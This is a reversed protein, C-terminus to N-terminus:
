PTVEAFFVAHEEREQDNQDSRSDSSSKGLAEL